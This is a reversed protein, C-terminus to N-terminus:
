GANRRRVTVPQWLFEPIVIRGGQSHRLRDAVLGPLTAVVASQWRQARGTPVDHQRRRLNGRDPDGSGVAM